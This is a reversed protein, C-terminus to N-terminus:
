DDVFSPQQLGSRGAAATFDAVVHGVVQPRDGTDRQPQVRRLRRFHELHAALDVHGAGLEDADIGLLHGLPFRRVGVSPVERRSRELLEVGFFAGLALEAEERVAGPRHVPDLDGGLAFQKGLELLEPEGDVLRRDKAAGHVLYQGLDLDPVLFAVIQGVVGVAEHHLEVAEVLALAEPGRALHRLPGFRVFELGFLPDGLQVVDGELDTLEAFERRHRLEVRRHLERPRLDAPRRHVIRAPAFLLIHAEPIGDDHLLGPLDDRLDDADHEFRSRRFRLRQM